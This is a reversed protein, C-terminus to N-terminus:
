LFIFNWYFRVTLLLYTNYIYCVYIRCIFTIFIFDLTLLQTKIIGPFHMHLLTTYTSIVGKISCLTLTTPWTVTCCQIFVEGDDLLDLLSVTLHKIVTLLPLNYDIHYTIELAGGFCVCVECQLQKRSMSIFCNSERLCKVYDEWSVWVTIASSYATTLGGEGM